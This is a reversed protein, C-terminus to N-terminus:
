ALQALSAKHELAEGVVCAAHEYQSLLLGPTEIVGKDPGLVDEESQEVLAGADGALRQSRGAHREIGGSCLDERDDSLTPAALGARREGWSCLLHELKGEALGKLQAVFLDAGLVEEEAEDAFTFADGGLHEDPKACLGLPDPLPGHGQDGVFGPFTPAPRRTASV